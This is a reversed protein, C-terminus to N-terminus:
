KKRFILFSNDKSKGSGFGRTKILIYEGKLKLGFLLFVIEKIEGSDGYKINKMEYTGSDWIKVEGAGYSGEEITGEFDIYGRDHDEVKIALRKVGVDSSLNKPVAWSKLVFKGEKDNEPMELRFDYHLHRAHHEQVVFRSRNENISEM